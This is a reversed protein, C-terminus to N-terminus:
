GGQFALRPPPQNMVLLLVSRKVTERVQEFDVPEQIYSRVGWQDRKILGHKEKPATLIVVSIPENTPNNKLQTLVQLGDRKSLKLDVPDLRPPQVISGHRAHMGRDLLSNLAQDGGRVVEVHNPLGRRLARLVLELDDPNDQVLLIDAEEQGV